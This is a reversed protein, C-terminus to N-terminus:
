RYQLANSCTFNSIPDTYNSFGTVPCGVEAVLGSAAGCNVTKYNAIIFNNDQMQQVYNKENMFLIGMGILIFTFGCCGVHAPNRYTQQGNNVGNNMRM